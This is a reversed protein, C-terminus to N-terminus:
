EPIYPLLSLERSVKIARAVKRQHGACLGTRRRPAIKMFSSIFRRLTMTDRPSVDNINQVCFYCM